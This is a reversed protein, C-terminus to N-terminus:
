EYIEQGDDNGKSIIFREKMTARALHQLLMEETITRMRRRKAACLIPYVWAGPIRDRAGWNVCTKEVIEVKLGPLEALARHLAAPGGFAEMIDSATKLKGQSM